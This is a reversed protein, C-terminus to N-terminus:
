GIRDGGAYVNYGGDRAFGVAPSSEFIGVNSRQLGAAIGRNYLAPQLMATGPTYLGSRYYSSGSVERMADGDLLEYPESMEALHAAYDQNHHHGKETAAANVKGVPRYAEDPMEYEEAADVTMVKGTTGQTRDHLEVRHGLDVDNEDLARLRIRGIADLPDALNAEHWRRTRPCRREM